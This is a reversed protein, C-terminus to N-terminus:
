PQTWQLKRPYLPYAVPTLEPILANLSDQALALAKEPSLEDISVSSIFSFGDSFSLYVPPGNETITFTTSKKYFDLEYTGPPLELAIHTRSENHYSTDKARGQLHSAKIHYFTSGDAFKNSDVTEQPKRNFIILNAKKNLTTGAKGPENSPALATTRRMGQAGAEHLKKQEMIGNLTIAVHIPGLSRANKADYKLEKMYADTTVLSHWITKAALRDYVVTESLMILTSRCGFSTCKGLTSDAYKWDVLAVYRRGTTSPPLGQVTDVISPRKFSPPMPIFALKEEPDKAADVYARCTWSKLLSDNDSSVINGWTNEHTKPICSEPAIFVVVEVDQREIPETVDSLLVERLPFESQPRAAQVGQILLLLAAGAALRRLSTTFFPM